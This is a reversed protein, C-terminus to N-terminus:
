FYNGNNELNGNDNNHQLGHINNNANNNNHVNNNQPALGTPDNIVYKNYFYYGGFLISIALILVVFFLIIYKGTQKINKNERPLISFTKNEINFISYYNNLVTTGGIFLDNEYNIVIDINCRSGSISSQYAMYDTVNVLFEVGNEAIFKFNGFKKKYDEDCQCTFYGGRAVQCKADKPFINQVNKIFFKKPIYFRDASMDLTLKYEDMPNDVDEDKEKRIKLKPFSMYWVSKDIEYTVNEEHTINDDEEEKLLRNEFINNKDERLITETHNEYKHEVVINFTKLEDMSRGHDYDGLHLEAKEEDFKLAFLKKSTNFNYNLYSLSFRGNGSYNTAYSLNHFAVFKHEGYTNGTTYNGNLLRGTFNYFYYPVSVNKNENKFKSEDLKLETCKECYYSPFFSVPLNTSFIFYNKRPEPFYLPIYYYSNAYELEIKEYELCVKEILYIFIILFFNNM